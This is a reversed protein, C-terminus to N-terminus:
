QTLWFGVLKDADGCDTEGSMLELLQWGRQNTHMVYSNKPDREFALQGNLLSQCLRLKMLAPVLYLEKLDLPFTATGDSQYGSFIWHPLLRLAKDLQMQEQEIVNYLMMVALDIVQQGVQLDQFDILCLKDKYNSNSEWNLLINKNCLDGHVIFEPLKDLQPKIKQDYEDLVREVLLHKAHNEDPYLLDLSRRLHPVCTNVQWLFSDGRAQRLKDILHQQTRLFVFLENCVRGLKRYLKEGKLKHSSERSASQKGILSPERRNIYDFMTIGDFYESLKINCKITEISSEFDCEVGPREGDKASNLALKHYRVSTFTSLKDGTTRILRPVVFSINAFPAHSHLHAYYIIEDVIDTIEKVSEDRNVIKLVYTRHDNSDTLLFNKDNYGCLPKISGLIPNLNYYTSAIYAVLSDNAQM